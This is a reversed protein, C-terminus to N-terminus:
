HNANLVIEKKFEDINSKCFEFIELLKKDNYNFGKKKDFCYSFKDGLLAWLRRDDGSRIWARKVKSLTDKQGKLSRHVGYHFSQLNTSSYCHYAAPNLATPLDTGRIVVDHNTDVNRDCMLPDITQNFVVKSSFCNLGYILDETYFDKLYAQIGTLRSNNEFLSQITDLVNENILVTDADIKVFISNSNQSKFDNWSDWLQNHAEKEPLNKIIEHHVIVNKQSLIAEVCKDFDGEDCMMTGVFIM